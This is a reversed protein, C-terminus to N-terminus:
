SDGHGRQKQCNVVEVLDLREQAVVMVKQTWPTWKM